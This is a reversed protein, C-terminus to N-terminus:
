EAGRVNSICEQGVCGVCGCVVYPKSNRERDSTVSTFIEWNTQATEYKLICVILFFDKRYQSCYRGYEANNKEKEREELCCFWLM